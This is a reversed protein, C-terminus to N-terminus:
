AKVKPNYLRLPQPQATQSYSLSAGTWQTIVGKFRQLSSCTGYTNNCPIAATSGCEISCFINGCSAGVQVGPVTIKSWAFSGELSISMTTGDAEVEAEDINGQFDFISSEADARWLRFYVLAGYLEEARFIQSTDRRVTDGTLNQIAGSGTATQTSKYEKFSFTKTIWPLFAIPGAAIVNGSSSASAGPATPVRPHILPPGSPAAAAALISPASIAADSWCFLDGAVTLVELLSVPAPGGSAATTQKVPQPFTKM